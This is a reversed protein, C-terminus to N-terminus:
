EGENEILCVYVTTTTLYNITKPIKHIYYYFYYYHTVYWLARGHGESFTGARRLAVHPQRPGVDAAPHQQQRRQLEGDHLGAARGERGLDSWGAAYMCPISLDADYGDTSILLPSLSSCASTYITTSVIVVSDRAAIALIDACSVVGPCLKEVASKVADIVEFGRVSGNNPNAMKEGQFSPTDDLLLSADCGQIFPVYV